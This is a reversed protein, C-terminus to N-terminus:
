LKSHYSNNNTNTNKNAKTDKGLLASPDADNLKSMQVRSQNSQNRRYRKKSERKIWVWLLFIVIILASIAVMISIWMTKGLGLIDWRPNYSKAEKKVGTVILELAKYYQGQKLLNEGEAALNNATRRGVVREAKQGM